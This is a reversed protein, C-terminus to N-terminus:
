PKETLHIHFRKPVTQEGKGKKIWRWDGYEYWLIDVDQWWETTSEDDPPGKWFATLWPKEPTHYKCNEIIIWQPNEFVVPNNERLYDVFGVTDQVPANELLPYAKSHLSCPIPKHCYAVGYVGMLARHGCKGEDRLSQSM